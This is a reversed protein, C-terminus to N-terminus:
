EGEREVWELGADLEDLKRALDLDVDTIGGRDHTTLALEAYGWGFTIDPHHNAGDAIEGVNNVFQLATAFNQFAWRKELVKGDTTWGNLTNLADSLEDTDLIKREMHNQSRGNGLVWDSGSGTGVQKVNYKINKLVEYLYGYFAYKTM